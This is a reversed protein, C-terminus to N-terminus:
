ESPSYIQIRPWKKLARIPASLDQARQPLHENYLWVFSHLKTELDQAGNFRHSKLVRALRGNYRSWWVSPM